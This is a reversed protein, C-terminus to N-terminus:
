ISKIRLAGYYGGLGSALVLCDYEKVEDLLLCLELITSAGQTHGIESKYDLIDIGVFRKKLLEIEAVNNSPTNTGHPKILNIGKCNLKNLVKSYGEQSVAMPGVERNWSWATDVIKARSNNTKEKTLHVIAIGDGCYLDIGLQEFFKLETQVAVNETYVIVNDYESLLMRADHLAKLSSSCTDANTSVYEVNDFLSALKHVKTGLQSKVVVNDREKTFDNLKIDSSHVCTGVAYLFATTGVCKIQKIESRVLKLYENSMYKTRDIEPIIISKDPLKETGYKYIINEIYM